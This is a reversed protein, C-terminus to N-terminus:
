RFGGGNIGGKELRSIELSRERDRPCGPQPAHFVEAQGSYGAEESTFINNSTTQVSPLPLLPDLLFHRSPFSAYLLKSPLYTTKDRSWTATYRNQALLLIRAEVEDLM